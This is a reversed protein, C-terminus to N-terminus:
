GGAHESPGLSQAGSSLVPALTSDLAAINTDIFYKVGVTPNFPKQNYNAGPCAWSPNPLALLCVIALIGVRKM